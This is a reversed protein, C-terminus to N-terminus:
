QILWDIPTWRKPGQSPAAAKGDPGTGTGNPAVGNSAVSPDTASANPPPDLGAKRGCGALGLAAALAGIAAIRALRRHCLFSLDSV